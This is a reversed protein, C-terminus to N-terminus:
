CGETVLPRHRSHHPLSLPQVAPWHCAPAPLHRSGTRPDQFVGQPASPPASAVSFSPLGLIPTSTPPSRQRTPDPSSPPPQPHPLLLAGGAATWGSGEVGHIIARQGSQGMGQALVPTAAGLGTRSTILNLGAGGGPSRSRASIIPM